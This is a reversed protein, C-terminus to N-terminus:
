SKLDAFIAHQIPCEYFERNRSKFRDWKTLRTWHRFTDNLIIFGCTMERNLIVYAYPKPRARDYAHCPDVIISQYKFDDKSTFTLSKRQKVEIRQLIELDGSDAYDNKQSVDPREFSPRIIVPTGRKRIWSAVLEVSQQSARLDEIFNPDQKDYDYAINTM